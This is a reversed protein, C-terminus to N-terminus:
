QEEAFLWNDAMLLLDPLNVQGDGGPPAIDASPAAPVGLWQAALVAFDDLDVRGNRIIDAPNWWVGALEIKPRPPTEMGDGLYFDVMHSQYYGRVTM